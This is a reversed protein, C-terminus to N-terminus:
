FRECAAQPAARRRNEPRISAIAGGRRLHLHRAAEDCLSATYLVVPGEASPRPPASFSLGRAFSSVFMSLRGTGAYAPPLREHLTSTKRGREPRASEGAPRPVGRSSSFAARLVWRWKQSTPPARDSEPSSSLGGKNTWRCARGLALRSNPLFTLPGRKPPAEKSQSEAARRWRAGAEFVSQQHDTASVKPSSTARERRTTRPAM